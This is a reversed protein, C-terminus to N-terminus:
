KGKSGKLELLVKYAAEQEAAKKNHGCGEARKVGNILIQTTFMKNHEPGEEAIVEYQLIWGPHKQIEEQLLSKSDYFLQKDDLDNLVHNMIFSKAPSLGGDLFIAGIIAEMVDSTVSARNRGGTEEEGKGLFICSSIGLEKACFALAVECVMSARLRTLEGEKLQPYKLFLYESSVMELIADGLFEYREYDQVKNIKRENAYSSHTLATRLHKDDVFHYGILEEAKQISNNDM